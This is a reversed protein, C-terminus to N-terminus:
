SIENDPLERPGCLMQIYISWFFPSKVTPDVHQSLQYWPTDPNQHHALHHHYNLFLYRTWPSVRLNWAGDVRDRITYAHNAYQLSSWMWAFSGYCIMYSFVTLELFYCLACQLAIAFIVELRIRSHNEIGDLMPGIGMRQIVPSSSRIMPLQLIPSAILFLICFAPASTWYWGCLISYWQIRKFTRNDDPLFYDWSELDSRNRQHHGLHFHKQASYSTPFFPACLTGILDNVTIRDSACSHVAEHLMAFITNAFYAFGIAYAILKWWINSHAAGHLCLIASAIAFFMILINFTTKM